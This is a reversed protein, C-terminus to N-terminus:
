APVGVTITKLETYHLLGEAGMEQGIGSQKWGGFPMEPQSVGFHNIGVMGAELAEGLRHATRLDCTFAYAGLGYPLANAATIAEDLTDYPQLVAIPGFPEQRMVRSDDPADAIVTPEFFYGPRAIRRGGCLLRAGRDVADDVFRQMDEIRRAHALPGMQTAPDTGAGIRLARAAQVFAEAWEDFRARPLYFRIPSACVQGANRFKAAISNRLAFAFDADECVIVPAHGGLEGTFRKVHRAAQEGLLQGVAVSGTFSVKAIAPHDILFSSVEAPDGCVMNLADPPVGADLFARVLLMCTGPTEEAPKIVVSCGAALASALKRTPLNAPFNWPTFAAVPGVPQRTVAQSLIGEVRPPVLRGYLRKAEEAQFDVIDASLTVERLSEALPKGQELTLVQAIAKARDRITQAATRLINCRELASKARWLAFGRRASEAAQALEDRSALPLQALTAETAPDVVARQGGATQTRWRGAIHLALEPYDM